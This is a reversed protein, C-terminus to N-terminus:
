LIRLSSVISVVCNRSGDIAAGFGLHRENKQMNTRTLSSVFTALLFNAAVAKLHMTKMVIRGLSVSTNVNIHKGMDHVKHKIMSISFFDNANDNLVCSFVIAYKLVNSVKELSAAELKWLENCYVFCSSLACISTDVNCGVFPLSKANHLSLHGSSFRFERSSLHMKVGILEPEIM